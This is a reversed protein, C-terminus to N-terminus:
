APATELELLRKSIQQAADALSTAILIARDDSVEPTLAVVNIFHRADPANDFIPCAISTIGRRYIGADIAWGRRKTEELSALWDKLKPRTQWRIFKFRQRLEEQSFGGFAAACRGTAGAFLEVRFGVPTDLYVDNTAASAGALVVVADNGDSKSAVFRLRHTAALHELHPQALATFVDKQAHRRALAVVGIGIEYRKTNAHFEVLGTLALERLIHLCSSPILGLERAIESLAVPGKAGALFFLIDSAKKVAPVQRIRM